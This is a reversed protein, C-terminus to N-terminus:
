VRLGVGSFNPHVEGNRRKLRERRECLPVVILHHLALPRGEVTTHTAAGGQRFIIKSRFAGCGAPCKGLWAGGFRNHRADLTPFAHL